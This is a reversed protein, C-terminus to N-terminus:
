RAAELDRLRKEWVGRARLVREVFLDHLAFLPASVHAGEILELAEAVAELTSRGEAFSSDRLRVAERPTSALTIRRVGHLVPLRQYMRRAQRWTGYIVVLRKVEQPSWPAPPDEPLLVFTGPTVLEALAAAAPQTDEGYDLCQLSPVGLAAVRATGTSKWSERLHRVIVVHTRPEVVPLDACICHAQVVWCQKCRGPLDATTFSRV